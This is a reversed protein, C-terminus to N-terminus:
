QTDLYNNTAYRRYNYNVFNTNIEAYYNKLEKNYYLSPIEIPGNFTEFAIM